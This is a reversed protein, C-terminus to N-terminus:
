INMVGHYLQAFWMHVHSADTEWNRSGFCRRNQQFKRPNWGLNEYFIALYQLVAGMCHRFIPQYCTKAWWDLVVNTFMLEVSVPECFNPTPFHFFIPTKTILFYSFSTINSFFSWHCAIDIIYSLEAHLLNVQILGSSAHFSLCTRAKKGVWKCKPGIWLSCLLSLILFIILKQYVKPHFHHTM